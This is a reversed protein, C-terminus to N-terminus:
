FYTRQIYLMLNKIDVVYANLATTTLLFLGSSFAIKKDLDTFDDRIVIPNFRWILFLCIYIKVYYDITNLTNKANESVGIFSLTLLIYTIYITISFLYYQVTNLQKKYKM